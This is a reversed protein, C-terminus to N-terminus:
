YDIVIRGSDDFHDVRVISYGPESFQLRALRRAKDASECTVYILRLSRAGVRRGKQFHVTYELM